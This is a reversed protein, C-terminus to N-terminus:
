PEHDYDYQRDEQCASRWLGQAEQQTMWHRYNSFPQGYLSVSHFKPGPPLQLMYIPYRQLDNKPWETCKDWFSRYSSFLYGYLSLSLNPIPPLQLIYIPYRRGKLTQLWNPSMQHVWRVIAQLEFMTLWITFHISSQSESTITVYM